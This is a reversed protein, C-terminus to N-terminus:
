RYKEVFAQIDKRLNLSDKEINDLEKILETERSQAHQIAFDAVDYADLPQDSKNFHKEVEAKAKDVVKLYEDRTEPM